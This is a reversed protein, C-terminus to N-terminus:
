YDRGNLLWVMQFGVKLIDPKRIFGSKSHNTKQDGSYNGGWIRSSRLSVKSARAEALLKTSIWFGVKRFGSVNFVLIKLSRNQFPQVLIIYWLYYHHQKPLWKTNAMGFGYWFIQNEVYPLNLFAALLVSKLLHSGFVSAKFAM